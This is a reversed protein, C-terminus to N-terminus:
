LSQAKLPTSDSRQSDRNSPARSRDPEDALVGRAVSLVGILLIFPLGLLTVTVLCLRVVVSFPTNM